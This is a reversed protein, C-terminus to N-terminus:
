VGDRLNLQHGCVSAPKLKLILPSFGELTETKTQGELLSDLLARPFGSDGCTAKLYVSPQLVHGSVVRGVVTSMPFSTLTDGLYKNVRLCM